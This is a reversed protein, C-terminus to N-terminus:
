FIWWKSNYSILRIASFPQSLIKNDSEDIKETVVSGVITVTNTTQDIKKITLRFGNTLIQPLTLTINQTGANAMIFTDSEITPSFVVDSSIGVVTSYHNFGGNVQVVSGTIVLM